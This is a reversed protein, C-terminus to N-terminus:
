QSRPVITRFNGGRQMDREAWVAVSRRVQDNGLSQSRVGVVHPFRSALPEVILRVSRASTELVCVVRRRQVRLSQNRRRGSKRAASVAVGRRLACCRNKALVPASSTSTNSVSVSGPLMRDTPGPKVLLAFAEVVGVFTEPVEGDLVDGDDVDLGVLVVVELAAGADEGDDTDAGAAAGTAAIASGCALSL